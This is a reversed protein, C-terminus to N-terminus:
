YTGWVFFKPPSPQMMVRQMCVTSKGFDIGKLITHFNHIYTEYFHSTKADNPGGDHFNHGLNFSDVNLFTIQKSHRAVGAMWLMVWVNM